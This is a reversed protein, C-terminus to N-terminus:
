SYREGYKGHLSLKTSCKLVIYFNVAYKLRTQLNNNAFSVKPSFVVCYTRCILYKSTQIIVNREAVFM